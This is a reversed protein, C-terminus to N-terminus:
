RKAPKLKKARAIMGEAMVPHPFREGHEYYYYARPSIELVGAMEALTLGAAKRREHLIEHFSPAPKKKM